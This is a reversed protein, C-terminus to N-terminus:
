RARSSLNVASNFYAASAGAEEAFARRTRSLRQAEEPCSRFFGLRRRKGATCGASWPARQVAGFPLPHHFELEQMPHGDHAGARPNRQQQGDYEDRTRL